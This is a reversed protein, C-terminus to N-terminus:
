FQATWREISFPKMPNDLNLGGDYGKTMESVTGLTITMQSEKTQALFCLAVRPPQRLTCRACNLPLSRSRTQWVRDSHLLRIDAPKAQRAASAILSNTLDHITPVHTCASASVVCFGLM